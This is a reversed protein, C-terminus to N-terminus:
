EPPNISNKLEQLEAELRAVKETLSANDNKLQTSDENNDYEKNYQIKGDIYQFKRPRFMLIFDSPIISNDIEIGGEIGGVDAYGVILNEDNVSIQM